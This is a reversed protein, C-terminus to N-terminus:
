ARATYRDGASLSGVDHERDKTLPRGKTIPHRPPVKKLNSRETETQALKSQRLKQLGLGLLANASALLRDDHDIQGATGAVLVHVVDLSFRGIVNPAFELRDVRVNGAHLDALVKRIEGAHHILEGDNPREDTGFTLM